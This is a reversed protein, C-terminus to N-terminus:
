PNVGVATPSFGTYISNLHTGSDSYREISGYNFNPIYVDGNTPDVAIQTPLGPEYSNFGEGENDIVSLLVGGPSYREVQGPEDGVAYLYLDGNPAVATGTANSFSGFSGAYKHGMLPPVPGNVSSELTAVYRPPQGPVAVYLNPADQVPLHQPDSTDLRE